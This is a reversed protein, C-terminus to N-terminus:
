NNKVLIVAFYMRRYHISQSVISFISQIYVDNLRQQIINYIVDHNCQEINEWLYYLGLKSMEEKINKIWSDNRSIMDEYFAKLVCNDSRSLKLWYKFIRLKMKVPLPVRGLECYMFNIEAKPGVGLVKRCFNGQVKEVDSAYLLVSTAYTDSVTFQTEVNLSHNKLSGSISFLAKKGHESAHKQTKIFKGKYNFMMGLYNFEDVIDLVDNNYM